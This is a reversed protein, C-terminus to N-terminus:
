IGAKRCLFAALAMSIIYLAAFINFAFSTNRETMIVNIEGDYGRAEMAAYTRDAQRFARMFIGSALAATSHYGTKLTDYGLRAEQATRIRNAADFLVFIYRYILETIETIFNPLPSKRLLLFLDLMPTTLSLFYMCSVAGFCKVMVAAAAALGERGIGIYIGGLRFAALMGESSKNVSVAIAAAGMIVFVVPIRMLHFVTKAKAKGIYIIIFLMVAVTLASVLFSNAGICIILAAAAFLTKALPSIDRLRSNYALKDIIM